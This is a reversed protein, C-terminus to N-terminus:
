PASSPPLPKDIETQKKRQIEAQIRLKKKLKAAKIRKAKLEAQQALPIYTSM